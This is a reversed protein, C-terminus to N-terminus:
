RQQRNVAQLSSGSISAGAVGVCVHVCVCVCVCVCACMCVCMCYVCMSRSMSVVAVSLAAKTFVIFYLNSAFKRSPVYKAAKFSRPGQNAWAFWTARNIDGGGHLCAGRMGFNRELKKKLAKWWHIKVDTCNLRTNIFLEYLYEDLQQWVGFWVEICSLYVEAATLNSTFIVKCWGLWQSGM